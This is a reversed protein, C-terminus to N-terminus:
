ITNAERGGSRRRGGLKWHQPRGVGRGTRKLCWGRTDAKRGGAREEGLQSGPVEEVDCETGGKGRLAASLHTRGWHAALTTLNGPLVM